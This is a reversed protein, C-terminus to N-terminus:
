INYDVIEFGARHFFPTESFFPKLILRRMDDLALDSAISILSGLGSQGTIIKDQLGLAPQHADGAINIATRCFIANSYNIDASTLIGCHTDQGCEIGAM